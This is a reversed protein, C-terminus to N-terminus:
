IGGKQTNGVGNVRLADTGEALLVAKSGFIHENGRLLTALIHATEKKVQLTAAKM